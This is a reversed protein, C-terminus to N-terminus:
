DERSILKLVAEKLPFPLLKCMSVAAGINLISVTLFIQPISFGCKTCALAFGAAGIMFLANMLNNSAIARAGHAHDARVQLLAYLPVIYIGGCLALGLLDLLIHRGSAQNLFATIGLLIGDASPMAHLSTAYLDLTFLTMGLAGFPVPTARVSGKILRACLLSGLAIGVSFAVLFLTVVHEDAHLVDKAFPSFQALVLAGFFWFWSIGLICLFEDRRASSYRIMGITERFPNLAWTLHPAPAPAAPIQRSAFYGLTALGTMLVAIITAGYTTLILVGGLITGSLIALFTGAEIGGNGAVLEEERLHQPLIAYKVPGFFTSHTGFGFLTLLLVPVSNLYFGVSGIISLAIESLKVGRAVRARDVKDALQGSLYSFLLLPLTFLGFAVNVLQASYIRDNAAIRYTVLIILANKFLNDNFAGFFQTVFLPLFRKSLM